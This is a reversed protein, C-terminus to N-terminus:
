DRPVPSLFSILKVAVLGAAVFSAISLATFVPWFSALSAAIAADSALVPVHYAAAVPLAITVGIVLGAFTVGATLLGLTAIVGVAGVAIVSGLGAERRPTPTSPVLSTTMAEGPHHANSHDIVVDADPAWWEAAM